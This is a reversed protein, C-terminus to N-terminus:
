AHGIFMSEPEGDAAARLAAVAAPQEVPLARTQQVLGTIGNNRTVLEQRCAKPDGMM